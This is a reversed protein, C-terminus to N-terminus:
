AGVADTATLVSRLRRLAKARTPGITGVAISLSAAVQSYTPPPTVALARLLQRQRPPLGDVAQWLLENSEARLLDVDISDGVVDHGALQEDTAQLSRKQLLRICERRMATSLWGAVREPDHVGAINQLLCLWTAQAADDGEEPTLRFGLAISRLLGKHRRVLESWAREDGDAAQRVVASLPSEALDVNAAHSHDGTTGGVAPDTARSELSM